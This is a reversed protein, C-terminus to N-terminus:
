EINEQRQVTPKVGLSQICKLRSRVVIADIDCDDKNLCLCSELTPSLDRQLLKQLFFLHQTKLLSNFLSCSFYTKLTFDYNLVLVLLTEPKQYNTELKAEFM